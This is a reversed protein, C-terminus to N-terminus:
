QQAVLAVITQSPLTCTLQYSGAPGTVQLDPPLVGYLSRDINAV